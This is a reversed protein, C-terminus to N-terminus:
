MASKSLAHRKLSQPTSHRKHYPITVSYIPPIISHTIQTLFMHVTMGSGWSAKWGKAYWLPIAGLGQPSTANHKLEHLCCKLTQCRFQANHIVGKYFCGFLLLFLALAFCKQWM